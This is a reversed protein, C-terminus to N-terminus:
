RTTKFSIPGSGFLADVGSATPLAAKATTASGGPLDSARGALNSMGFASVYNTGAGAGSGNLFGGPGSLGGPATGNVQLIYRGHVNLRHAFSLTVAHAQVDYKARSPAIGHGIKAGHRNAHFIRYNATATATVPDLATSFTLYLFTPQAHYGFRQLGTVTPWLTVQPTGAAVTVPVAAAASPAFDADGGFAAGIAHVGVGLMSTTLTAVAAGNLSQLPVPAQAVGDISFTVSGSPTGAGSAAVTATITVTQGVTTSAPLASLTITTSAPNVQETLSAQSASSTADGSYTATIPHSGVAFAVPPLTAVGGILPAKGLDSGTSTDVFDM